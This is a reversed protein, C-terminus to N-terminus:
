RPGIETTRYQGASVKPVRIKATGNQSVNHAPQPSKCSRRPRDNADSDPSWDWAVMDASDLAYQLRESMPPSENEREPGTGSSGSAARNHVDCIRIEGPRQEPPCYDAM